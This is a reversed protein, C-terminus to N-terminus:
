IDRIKPFAFSINQETIINLTEFDVGKIEAIKEATYKLYAPENEKGRFPVPSIYPCDTELLIKDISIARVIDRINESKKFTVWGAIGIYFNSSIEIAQEPTTTCCHWHGGTEWGSLNNMIEFADDTAEREHIVLPLEADQALKILDAFVKKQIYRPSNDYHFDLGTEGVAVVFNDKVMQVLKHMQSDTFDKSDHPHVGVAARLIDPYEHALKIATESSDIDYGVVIAKNVGAVQMRNIYDSVHPLMRPDNLHTHADIM